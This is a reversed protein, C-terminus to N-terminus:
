SDMCTYVRTHIYTCIYIYMYIYTGKKLYSLYTITSVTSGIEYLFLFCSFFFCM